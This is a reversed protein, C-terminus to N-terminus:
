NLFTSFKSPFNVEALDGIATLVSVVVGPNPEQEKLKPVLVKLIPEM